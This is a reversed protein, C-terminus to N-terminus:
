LECPRVFHRSSTSEPSRRAVKCASGRKSRVVASANTCGYSVYLHAGRHYPRATSSRGVAM